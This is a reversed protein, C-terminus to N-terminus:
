VIVQFETLAKDVLSNPKIESTGTVKGFLHLAHSEKKIKNWLQTDDNESFYKLINQYGIPYFTTPKYLTVFNNKNVNDLELYSFSALVTGCGWRTPVYNIEFKSLIKAVFENKPSFAMFGISASFKNSPPLLQNKEGFAYKDETFDPIKICWELDEEECWEVGIFNPPFKTIPQLLISDFDSYIGGFRYLLVFRLFDSSHAYFYPSTKWEDLSEAWKEGPVGRSLALIDYPVVHVDRGAMSFDAFIYNSLTNSFVRVCADVHHYFISELVRQHRLKFTSVDTTWILIFRPGQGFCVLPNEPPEETEVPHAPPLMIPIMSRSLYSLSCLAGPFQLPLIQVDSFWVTGTHGRFLLLIFIM